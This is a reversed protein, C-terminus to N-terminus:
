LGRYALGQYLERVTQDYLNLIAARKEDTMPRLEHCDFPIERRGCAAKVSSLIEGLQARLDPDDATKLRETCEAYIHVLDDPLDGIEGTFASAEETCTQHDTIQYTNAEGSRSLSLCVEEGRPLLSAPIRIRGTEDARLLTGELNGAVAQDGGEYRLHIACGNFYLHLDRDQASCRDDHDDCVTECIGM